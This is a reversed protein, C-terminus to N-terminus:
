FIDCMPFIGSPRQGQVAGKVYLDDARLAASAGVFNLGAYGSAFRTEAADTLTCEEVWDGEGQRSYVTFDVQAPAVNRVVRFEIDTIGELNSAMDASQVTVIGSSINALYRLYAKNPTLTSNIQFYYCGHNGAAGQGCMMAMAPSIDGIVPLLRYRVEDANFIPTYILFSKPGPYSTTCRLGKKGTIEDIRITAQPTTTPVEFLTGYNAAIDGATWGSFDTQFIM